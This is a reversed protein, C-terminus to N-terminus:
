QDVTDTSACFSVPNRVGCDCHMQLTVAIEGTTDHTYPNVVVDMSDWEAIIFESWVGQIMRDNPIQKSVFAPYGNVGDTDWLYRAVGSVKVTTKLRGKGQPTMVVAMSGIDANDDEIATEFDVIKAWTPTAGFTVTNIGTTNLLGLPEGAAGLGNIFARDKEIALVRALDDRVLAEVSISSQALLQKTFRTRGYIRHPVLAMQGFTQQSDTGTGGEALWYATAGGTHKPIAVNGRLGTLYTAGVQSFVMRNRLLEVLSGSLLDTGVTFGGASGVGETLGRTYRGSTYLERIIAEDRYENMDSPVFFGEPDRRCADAVAKSAEALLGPLPKGSALARIGDVIRYSKKEKENLGIEVSGTPVAKAGQERLHVDLIYERFDSISKDENIFRNRVDDAVGHQRTLADITQIRTSEAKRIEEKAAHREADTMERAERVIEVKPKKGQETTNETGSAMSEGQNENLQRGVGVTQDAPVSVISVEFPEWDIVRFTREDDEDMKHVRYGISANGIVGDRIDGILGQVDERGSLKATVRLKGGDVSVSKIVGIQDRVSNSHDLLLPASGSRFRALRISRASHDLVELGFGREVPEESSVSLELTRSEADLDEARITISRHRTEVSM